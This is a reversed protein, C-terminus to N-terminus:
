SDKTSSDRTNLIIKPVIHLFPPLLHSSDTMDTTPKLILSEMQSAQVSLTSRDDFQILYQSSVAPDLPTDM